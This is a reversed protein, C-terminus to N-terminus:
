LHHEDCYTEADCQKTNDDGGCWYSSDQACPNCSFPGSQDININLTNTKISLTLINYKGCLKEAHCRKMNAKNACWYRPGFICLNGGIPQKM